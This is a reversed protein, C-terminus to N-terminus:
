GRQEIPRRRRCAPVLACRAWLREVHGIRVEGGLALADLPGFEVPELGADLGLQDHLLFRVKAPMKWDGAFPIM